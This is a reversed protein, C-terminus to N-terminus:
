REHSARTPMREIGEAEVPSPFSPPAACAISFPVGVKTRGRRPPPTPIRLCKTLGSNACKSFVLLRVHQCAFFVLHECLHPAALRRSFHQPAVPHRDRASALEGILFRDFCKSEQAFVKHDIAIPLSAVTDDAFPARM